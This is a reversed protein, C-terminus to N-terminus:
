SLQTWLTLFMIEPYVLICLSNIESEFKITYNRSLKTMIDLLTVNIM